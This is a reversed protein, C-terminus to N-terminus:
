VGVKRWPTRASPDPEFGVGWEEDRKKNKYYDALSERMKADAMSNEINMGTNLGTLGGAMAGSLAGQSSYDKGVLNSVNLGSWPSFQISKADAQAQALKARKESESDLLGKLTMVGGGILPIPGM